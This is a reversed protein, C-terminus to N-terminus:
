LIDSTVEENKSWCVFVKCCLIFALLAVGIDTTILTLLVKDLDTGRYTENLLTLIVSSYIICIGSMGNYTAYLCRVSPQLSLVIGHIGTAISLIGCPLMVIGFTYNYKLIGLALFGVQAQIAAFLFIIIRSLKSVNTPQKQEDPTVLITYSLGALDYDYKDISGSSAM